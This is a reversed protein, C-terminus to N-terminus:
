AAVAPASGDATKDISTSALWVQASNVDAASTCATVESVSSVCFAGAVNPASEATCATRIPPLRMLRSAM